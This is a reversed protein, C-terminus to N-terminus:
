HRLRVIRVARVTKRTTTIRYKKPPSPMWLKANANRTPTIAPVYLVTYMAAGTSSHNLPAGSDVASASAAAYAKANFAKHSPTESGIGAQAWLRSHNPAFDADSVGGVHEIAGRLLSQRRRSSEGRRM